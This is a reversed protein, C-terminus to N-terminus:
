WTKQSMMGIVLTQALDGYNIPESTVVRDDIIEYSSMSADEFTAVDNIRLCFYAFILINLCLSAIGGFLTGSLSAGHHILNVPVGFKDFGRVRDRITM